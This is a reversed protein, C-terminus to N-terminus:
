DYLGIAHPWTEYIWEKLTDEDLKYILDLIEKILEKLEDRVDM